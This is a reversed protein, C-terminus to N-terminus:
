GATAYRTLLRPLLREGVLRDVAERGFPTMAERARVAYGIPAELLAARLAGALDESVLRADLSRAIPLAVYPGPAPTTVLM